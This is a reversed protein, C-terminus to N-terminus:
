FIALTNSFPGVALIKFSHAHYGIEDVHAPGIGIRTPTGSVARATPAKKMPEREGVRYHDLM